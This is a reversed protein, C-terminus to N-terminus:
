HYDCIEVDFADEVDFRFCIRWQSNISISYQGARGGQLAHLRNGPPVRLDEVRYASDIMDLKRIARATIDAPFRKSIGECFLMETDKDAFSKIM